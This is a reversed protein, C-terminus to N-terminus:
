HKRMREISKISVYEWACGRGCDRRKKAQGQNVMGELIKKAQYPTKGTLHAYEKVTILAGFLHIQEPTWVKLKANIIPDSDTLSELYNICAEYHAIAEQSETMDWEPNNRNDIILSEERIIRAKCEDITLTNRIAQKTKEDFTTM